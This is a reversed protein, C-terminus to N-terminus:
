GQSSTIKLEKLRERITLSDFILDKLVFTNKNEVINMHAMVFNSLEDSGLTETNAVKFLASAYEYKLGSLVVVEADVNKLNASNDYLANKLFYTPLLFIQFFHNQQIKKLFISILKLPALLNMMLLNFLTRSLAEGNKIQLLTAYILSNLENKTMSKYLKKGIIVSPTGKLSHCYYVNYNFVSSWYAKVEPIETLYAMNRIRYVLIDDDNIYRAKAIALIIKEGYFLFVLLLTASILFGILVGYLPSFVFGIFMWIVFYIIFLIAIAIKRSVGVERDINCDRPIIISM